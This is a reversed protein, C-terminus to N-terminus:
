PYEKELRELNARISNIDALLENCNTDLHEMGAVYIEVLHACIHPACRGLDCPTAGHVIKRLIVDHKAKVKTGERHEKWCWYCVTMM